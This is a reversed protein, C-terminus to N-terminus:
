KQGQALAQAKQGRALLKRHLESVVDGWTSMKDFGAEGVRKGLKGTLFDTMKAANFQEGYVVSASPTMSVEVGEGGALSQLAVTVNVRSQLPAILVSSQVSICTDSTRSVTTPFTLDLFRVQEALGNAKDWGGSVVKLLASVRTASQPLGRVHDRICQLFFEKEPRSPLPNRERSAAIYWLDITSPEQTETGCAPQFAATDFVLEIERKYSMSITTGSIGTIAWGHEKELEDTRALSSDACFGV